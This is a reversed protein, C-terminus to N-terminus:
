DRIAHKWIGTRYRWYLLLMRVVVEALSVYMTTVLGQHFVRILLVCWLTRILWQTAATIYFNITTDGAGRLVGSFIWALVQPVQLFATVRLCAAALEIVDGDPTFIGIIQRSLLYLGAGTFLMLVTGMLATTHVFKEALAPKRAGLSQGVLTTVATQFAFAPMFSMSEATLSLSNAAVAVTGLSAICRATLISASSMFIRELMAPLSIGFIQRTLVRDLKWPGRLSITYEGKRFFAVYLTFLGATAMGISTAIAAGAVGLGAGFM